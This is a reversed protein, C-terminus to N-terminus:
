HCSGSGADTYTGGAVPVFRWDYGDPHLTLALVGSIDTSSAELNGGPASVGYANAGGTGVVFERIGILDDRQGDPNM